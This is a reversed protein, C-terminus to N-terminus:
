VSVGVKHPEPKKAAVKSQTGTKPDMKRSFYLPNNHIICPFTQFRKSVSQAMAATAMECILQSLFVSVCNSM